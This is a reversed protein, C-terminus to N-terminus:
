VAEDSSCIYQRRVMGTGGGFPLIHKPATFSGDDRVFRDAKFVTPNTFLEADYHSAMNAIVVVDGQPVVLSAGTTTPLSLSQEATRVGFVSSHLRLM